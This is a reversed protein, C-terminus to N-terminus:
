WGGFFKKYNEEMIKKDLDTLEYSTYNDFCSKNKQKVLDSIKPAYKNTKIYDNLKLQIDTFDYNNLENHWNKLIEKKQELTKNAFVYNYNISIQQLIKKTEEITM